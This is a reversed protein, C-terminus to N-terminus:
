QPQLPADPAPEGLTSDELHRGLAREMPSRRRLKDMLVYVV